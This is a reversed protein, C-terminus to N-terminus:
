ELIKALIVIEMYRYVTRPEVTIRLLAVIFTKQAATELSAEWAHGDMLAVFVMKLFLKALGLRLYVVVQCQAPIRALAAFSIKAAVTEL